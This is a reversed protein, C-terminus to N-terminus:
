ADRRRTREWWDDAAAQRDPPPPDAPRAPIVHHAQSRRTPLSGFLGAAVALSAGILAVVVGPGMAQAVGISHQVSAGAVTILYGGIAVVGLAGALSTLWGRRVALGGFALAALILFILGASALPRSGRQHGAVHTRTALYFRYFIQANLQFGSFHLPRLWVLFPGIALAGAGAYTLGERLRVQARRVSV